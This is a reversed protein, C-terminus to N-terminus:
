LMIVESIYRPRLALYRRLQASGSFRPILKNEVMYFKYLEEQNSHEYIWVGDRDKMAFAITRVFVTEYFFLHRYLSLDDLQKKLLVSNSNSCYSSMQHYRHTM